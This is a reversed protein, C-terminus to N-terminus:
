IDRCLIPSMKGIRAIVLWVKSWFEEWGRLSVLVFSMLVDSDTPTILEIMPYWTRGGSESV